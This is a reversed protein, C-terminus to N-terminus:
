FRTLLYILDRAREINKIKLVIEGLPSEGVDCISYVGVFASQKNLYLTIENETSYKLLHKRVAALVRRSRFQHFIRLVGQYSGHKVYIVKVNDKKTVQVDGILVNSLAKFVKEESESPYVYTYAEIVANKLIGLIQKDEKLEKVDSKNKRM